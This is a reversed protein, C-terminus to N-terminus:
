GPAGFLAQAADAQPKLDRAAEESGPGAAELFAQDGRPAAPQPDALIGRAAALYAFAWAIAWLIHGKRPRLRSTVTRRPARVKRTHVARLLYAAGLLLWPVFAVVSWLPRFGAHELM